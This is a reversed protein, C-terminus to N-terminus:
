AIGPADNDVHERPDFTYFTFGAAICVDVDARTKLHDADAGYSGRWGEQFVGWTGDNVVDEPTRTTREMERISQQTFIPAIQTKRIARVHGPTALGLRDGLGASTRLGLTTPRTYELAAHLALANSYTTNCLRLVLSQGRLVVQREVGGFPFSLATNQARIIGLQKQGTPARGLFFLAHHAAAISRPYVDIGVIQNLQRALVLAADPDLAPQLEITDLSRSLTDM